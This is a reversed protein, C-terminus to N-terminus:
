AQQMKLMEATVQAWGLGNKLFDKVGEGGTIRLWMPGSDPTVELTFDFFPCCLREGSIFAAIKLCTASDAAFRFAFGDAVEVVEQRLQTLLEQSLRVHHQRQEAEMVTLDCVLSM